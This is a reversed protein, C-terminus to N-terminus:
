GHRRERRQEHVLDRADGLMAAPVPLDAMCHLGPDANLVRPIMNVALAATAEGGPIEPRGSLRLNPTGTIEISDGTEVGELGPHVQQPHILTIAPNGNRYAVATHLCGAVQGPGVTVFPTERHVRSIIPERREEIRDIRWGLADAIMHISDPFGIHGVVRGDKLREGFAQPTLGIGQGALVSPGYPSLDNVRKATISGIAACVGTLAIVLLDLVFGPNVGTGLASVGNALALRDIAAATKPSTHGPYAMEEAISIVHVGRGLLTVIEDRADALRSCTAHIAIEPRAEDILGALDGAIRLGLDRELGIARGLDTGAREARRGYAGVLELGEKCLVLRAIRSGMQGTGVVLVRIPDRM